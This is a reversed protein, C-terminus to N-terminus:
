AKPTKRIQHITAKLEPESMAGGFIYVKQEGPTHTNKAIILTPTGSINLAQSLAINKHIEQKVAKSNMDHKLKVMNLGAKKASALVESDSVADLSMLQNHLPLYKGQKAAALAAKTAYESEEGLIPLEKFVVRVNSDHQILNQLTRSLEKCHGCQYDFFDVITIDGNPNGETPSQVTHFLQKAHSGSVSEPSAAQASKAAFALLVFLSSFLVKHFNTNRM